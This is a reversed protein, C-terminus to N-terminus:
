SNSYGIRNHRQLEKEQMRRNMVGILGSSQTKQYDIAHDVQLLPGRPRPAYTSYQQPLQQIRPAGISTSPLNIDLPADNLLPMTPRFGAPRVVPQQPSVPGMTPRVPPRGMGYQGPRNVEFGRARQGLPTNEGREDEARRAAADRAAHHKELMSMKPRALLGTFHVKQQRKTQDDLPSALDAMYAAPDIAENGRPYGDSSTRRHDMAFPPRFGQSTMLGVQAPSPARNEM